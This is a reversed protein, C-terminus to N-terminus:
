RRMRPHERTLYTLIAASTEEPREQQTWHGCNEIIVRELNPVREEMGESLAPPLVPDDAACIMLCPVEIKNEAISATLEWNRDLNRYYEIPPTLAGAPRFAEKYVELVDDPFADANKVTANRFMMDIFDDAGRGWSLVWEAVYRDQFGIIYIPTDPFIMRLMQVPPIPGRPLDPTNVGIVGAVRDPFQRAMTWALIGGWDHGAVVFQDHGLADVLGVLTGNIFECDYAVDPKDSRGYGPLDPAVTHYGAAGLAEVQHRWSHALEPFGHLLLVLPGAPPGAELVHLRIGNTIVYRSRM